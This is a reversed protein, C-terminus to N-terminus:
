LKRLKIEQIKHNAGKKLILNARYRTPLINKELNVANIESWIQTATETAEEESLNAYRHFYSNPNQFATRCLIHFRDVYWQRIDQEEADVYISFDIFDSVALRPKNAKKPKPTQLINLGEIILIDPQRITQVQNPLIDYELHSYVPATVESKGAKVDILFHILKQLDYSEPFGKRKMLGRQELIRNPYLFGDTTVLDVKPHNPWRTLLAQLIRATTSKGVAVSGAIGIIYPVKPTLQGLFLNVAKYTDQSNAVHINLLRTLPLYIDSVENLSIRENIGRLKELEEETLPLPVSARLQKWDRRTFTIYPSLLENDTM